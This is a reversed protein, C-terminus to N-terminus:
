GLELCALGYIDQLPILPPHGKYMRVNLLQLEFGREELLSIAINNIAPLDILVPGERDSLLTDLIAGAFESQDALLPGIRWGKPITDNMLLCPRIRGYGQCFGKEDLVVMVKGEPRQLWEHLFLPRPTVEHRADYNQVEEESVENGSILQFSPPLDTANLPRICAQRAASPLAYRRTYYAHKFGWTAYDNVRDLAAELGVCAIGELYKMAHQWLAVGYGQGRFAPDVIFMGIFGYNQDYRIGAICGVPQEDLVGVWVGTRDTDCYIGVDGIGPCFGEQQAWHSVIPLDTETMLRITYTM